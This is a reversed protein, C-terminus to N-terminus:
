LLGVIYGSVDNMATYDQIKNDIRDVGPKDKLTQKCSAFCRVQWVRLQSTLNWRGM